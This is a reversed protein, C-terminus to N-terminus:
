LFLYALIVVIILSPIMNLIKIKKIELINMSLGIMLLGGVATLENIIIDTFFDQLSAAFLTLGGQYILLPIVSFIVGIGLSASLAIASFGDMLSKALLLNPAGGLGEEFAGLITMSGLCFLIFATTFGDSFNDNKSKVKKKLWESFINVLKDIDILEGIISGLVISFIMILFNNTKDAMQIGLFLIFLGIGQFVIKIINKPLRSHILLGIICGIIVAGANILTGLM